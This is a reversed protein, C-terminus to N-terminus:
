GIRRNGKKANCRRCLTQLNSPHNTGGRSFPVIHDIELESDYGCRLCRYNDRKFIAWRLRQHIAQRKRPIPPANRRRQEAIEEPSSPPVPNRVRHLILELPGLLMLVLFVLHGTSVLALFSFVSISWVIFLYGNSRQNNM